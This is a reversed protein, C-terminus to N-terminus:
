AHPYVMVDVISGISINHVIPIQIGSPISTLQRLKIIETVSDIEFPPTDPGTETPLDGSILVDRGTNLRFGYIYSLNPLASVVSDFKTLTYM